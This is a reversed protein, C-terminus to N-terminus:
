GVIVENMLVDHQNAPIKPFLQCEFAVGVKTAHLRPLFRDYFGRGRGMRNNQLDFAIGPVIGLDIISLDSLADGCPELIGFAGQRMAEAGSYQRFVLDDGQVVPLYINKRQYWEEIFQRTPLEDDLSWYVIINQADIFYSKQELQEFVYNACVQKQEDSLQAKLQRVLRRLANKDLIKINKLM